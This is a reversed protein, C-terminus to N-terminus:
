QKNFLGEKLYKVDMTLMKIDSSLETIAVSNEQFMKAYNNHENVRSTLIDLKNDLEQQRLARTVADKQKDKSSIILQCIISAAATILAVIIAEKM